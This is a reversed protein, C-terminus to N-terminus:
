AQKLVHEFESLIMATAGWVVKESLNYYPTTIRMGKSITIQTQGKNESSHLQDTEVEVLEDVEPNDWNFTPEGQCYGVFPSVLFKSPPIYLETLKGLLTIDDPSVGVEEHTERLATISLDNGDDEELKGGPLSMQASHVGQYTPRQILPFLLEGDREYLLILVAALRHDDDRMSAVSRERRGVPAMKYQADAGPLGKQFAQALKDVSFSFDKSM